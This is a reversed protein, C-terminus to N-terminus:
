QSIESAPHLRKRELLARVLQLGTRESPPLTLDSAGRPTTRTGWRVVHASWTLGGGFAPMLIRDGARIRDGDAAESIAVPISASSLNGYRDLNTFTHERSIELRRAVAEIIRLNAQHPIVLDIDTSQYEIKALVMRAAGVLGNVAQRFIEPGNFDWTTTGYCVGTNAFMAGIGNIRLMERDGTDCGLVEGVIGADTDTSELVIAGAGDGFLIAPGRNNWDMFQSLADAGIVIANRVAGSKILASGVSLGYM